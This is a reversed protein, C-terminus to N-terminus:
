KGIILRQSIEGEIRVIWQEPVGAQTAYKRYNSVREVAQEVMSCAGKINYRGAVDMVDAKTINENKGNITLSHRNVYFPASTDVAFTYDYAPAVHWVGDKDMTFSFNKNHDDVNGGVVNMVMQLFLQKIEDHPVDLRQAVDFLDEYSSSLPNMAALTQIHIKDKGKRDFRKTIFHTESSGELLKSPMMKMGADVGMLYYSYEIRTTPIASHEDFKIISPVFDPGPPAVQGSYCEGTEHNINVLAKPRRGGASTGVRFLSEIIFDPRIVAHFHKAENLAMQALRSLESIEVRFSTEFEVSVPPVFELAGMGRRGIYALRDIPSLKKSSIHHAKAWEAFVINGWHDPMSDAIFSPLGGFEKGEEPYVPLGRQAVAGLLPSRLPAMDLGAKVYEPDFYFCAQSGYGKKSSVLTGIKKDWLIVDLSDIM